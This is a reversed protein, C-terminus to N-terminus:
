YFKELKMYVNFDVPKKFKKCIRKAKLVLERPVDCCISFGFKEFYGPIVTTLWIENEFSASEVLKEIILKGIGTKRYQGLVGVTSIEYIKGHKKYRGFGALDDNKEAIYLKDQELKESDLNLKEAHTKVNKLDFGSAKRLILTM